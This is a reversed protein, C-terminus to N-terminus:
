GIVDNDSSLIFNSVVESAMKPPDLIASCKYDAIKM